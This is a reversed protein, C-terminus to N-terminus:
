ASIVTFTAEDAPVTFGRSNPLLTEHGVFPLMIHSTLVFSRCAATFGRMWVRPGEM